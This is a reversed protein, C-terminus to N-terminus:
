AFRNLWTLVEPIDLRQLLSYQRGCLGSRGIFPGGVNLAVLTNTSGLFVGGGSDGPCTGGHTPSPQDETFFHLADLAGRRTAVARVVAQKRTFAGVVERAHFDSIGYGVIEFKQQTTGTAPIIKNLLNPAPLRAPKINVPHDLILVGVDITNPWVSLDFTPYTHWTSATVWQSMDIPQFDALSIRPKEVFSVMIQDMGLATFESTCHAATLVVTPSILVGSCAYQGPALVLASYPHDTGDPQGGVVANAPAVVGATLLLAALAVGIRSIFKGM